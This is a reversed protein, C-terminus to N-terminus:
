FYTQQAWATWVGTASNYLRYWVDGDVTYYIQTTFVNYRKVVLLGEKAVPQNQNNTTMVEHNVTTILSNFDGSWGNVSQKVMFQKNIVDAAPHGYPNYQSNSDDITFISYGLWWDYKSFVQYWADFWNAQVQYDVVTKDNKVDSWPQSPADAFPPIGLEGFFVPKHWLDHLEQIEHEINQGRNFKDVKAIAAQIQESTPSTIATVEFYAAIAIVDVEGWFKRNMMTVFNAVSTSDWSADYWWNTRWFLKGSYSQRINKILAVWQTDWKETKVLNTAVYMGYCKNDEALKAMKNLAVGYNNFFNDMSAPAWATEVVTGNSIWPYLQLIIKYGKKTLYEVNNKAITYNDDSITPADDTSNKVTLLLPVTITNLGMAQAEKDTESPDMGGSPSISGAKIKGAAVTEIQSTGDNVATDNSGTEANGSLEHWSTWNSGNDSSMRSWIKGDNSEQYIQTIRGNVHMVILGGPGYGPINPYQDASKRVDYYGNDTKANFDGGDTQWLSLSGDKGKLSQLFDAETGKNGANLWSQYASAGDKGPPGVPGQPGTAGSEGQPLTPKDQINDWTLDSKLAVDPKNQVDDWTVTQNGTGNSSSDSTGIKSQLYPWLRDADEQRYRRGFTTDTVCFTKGNDPSYGKGYIGTETDYGAEMAIQRYVEGSPPEPVNEHGGSDDGSGGSQEKILAGSSDYDRDVDGTYSGFGGGGAGSMQWIDYTAPEYSYSAIWLYIGKDKLDSQDFHAKFPYDSCYLGLKFINKGVNYFVAFQNSWDGNLSKDEMDLFLYHDQPLKLDIANQVAFVAEGTQGYWYHYGHWILGYKECNAIHQAAAKDARMGTSLRIIVAKIGAAKAASYDFTNPDQWESIDIVNPSRAM